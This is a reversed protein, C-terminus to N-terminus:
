TGVDVFHVGRRALREARKLDDQYHSNGGDIVVDDPELLPELVDLTADVAGAPVMLWVVRPPRLEAVLAKLSDTLRAGSATAGCRARSRIGRVRPGAGGPAEGHQRGHPRAWDNGDADGPRRASAGARAE